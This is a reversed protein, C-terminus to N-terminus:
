AAVVRHLYSGAPIRGGCRNRLHARLKNAWLHVGYAEGPLEDPDFGGPEAFRGCQGVPVAYFAAQPLAHGIEGTEALVNSLYRPGVAGWPWRALPLGGALFSRLAYKRRRFGTLYPPVGRTDPTIALLKALAPSDPPLRLVAGNVYDPAELGFVHAAPFAFPRLAIIDLDVWITGPDRLLAYRFLDSHLAPSGTKAHRLIVDGPMVERADRVAVGAPVNGLRGYAYITLRDGMRLFSRASAAEIEGLADGIWLSALEAM